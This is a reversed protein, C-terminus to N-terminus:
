NVSEALVAVDDIGVIVQSVAGRSNVVTVDAIGMGSGVFSENVILLFQVVDGSLLVRVNGIINEAVAPAGEQGTGKGGIISIVNLGNDGATINGLPLSNLGLKSVRFKLLGKLSVRVSVPRFPEVFCEGTHGDAAVGRFSRVGPNGLVGAYYGIMSCIREVGERDGGIHNVIETFNILEILARLPGAHNGGVNGDKEDGSVLVGAAVVTFPNVVDGIAQNVCAMIDSDFEIGPVSMFNVVLPVGARIYLCGNDAEKILM